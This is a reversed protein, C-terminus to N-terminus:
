YAGHGRYNPIRAFGNRDVSPEFSRIIRNGITTPEEETVPDYVYNFGMFHDNSCKLGEVNVWDGQYHIGHKDMVLIPDDEILKLFGRGLISALWAMARSDSWHGNPVPRLRACATEMTFHKWETWTGNHFLVAKAVGAVKNPSNKHIVFPHCLSNNVGGVTEIRFHIVFPLPLKQTMEYITKADLNIGKRYHVQGRHFWAIGAGDPNEKAAKKLVKLSPKQKECSIIVCM